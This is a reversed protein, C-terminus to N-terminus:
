MGSATLLPEALEEAQERKLGLVKRPALTINELVNMHPFLNYTQFVIGM